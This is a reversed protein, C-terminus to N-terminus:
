RIYGRTGAIDRREAGPSGGHGGAADNPRGPEAIDIEARLRLQEKGAPQRAKFILATHQRDFNRCLRRQDIQLAEWVRANTKQSQRDEDDNGAPLFRGIPARTNTKRRRAPSAIAIPPSMSTSTISIERVRTLSPTRAGRAMETLRRSVIGTAASFRCADSNMPPRPRSHMSSIRCM